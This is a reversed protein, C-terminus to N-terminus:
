RGANARRDSGVVVFDGLPHEAVVGRGRRTGHRRPVSHRNALSRFCAANRDRAVRRAGGRAGRRGSRVCSRPRGRDCVADHSAAARALVARRDWRGRRSTRDPPRRDRRRRRTAAHSHDLPGSRLRRPRRAIRDRLRRRGATHRCVRHACRHSGADVPVRNGAEVARDSWRRRARPSLGDAAAGNPVADHLVPYVARRARDPEVGHCRAWPPELGVRVRRVHWASQGPLPPVRRGAACRRRPFKPRRAPAAGLRCDMRDGPRNHERAVPPCQHQQGRLDDHRTNQPLFQAPCKRAAAARTGRTRASPAGTQGRSSACRHGPDSAAIRAAIASICSRASLSGHVPGRRARGDDARDTGASTGAAAGFRDHM